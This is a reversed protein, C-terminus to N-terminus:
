YLGISPTNSIMKELAVQLNQTPLLDQRKIATQYTPWRETVLPEGVTIQVWRQGLRPRHNDGKIRALMDFM